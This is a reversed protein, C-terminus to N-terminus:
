NTRRHQADAVRLALDGSEVIQQTARALDTVPRLTRRTILMAGLIALGLGLGFIIWSTERLERWLRSAPEDHLAISLRRRQSVDAQQWTGNRRARRREGREPPTAAVRRSAEDSSVGFLEIDREDTLRVAVSPRPSPSCDFMSQLAATGGSELAARYRELASEASRQGERRMSAQM